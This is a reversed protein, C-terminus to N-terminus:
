TKKRLRQIESLALGTIEAIDSLTYGKRLMGIADETKGEAKGEAKGEVKGERRAEAIKPLVYQTIDAMIREPIEEGEFYRLRAYLGEELKDLVRKDKSLVENRELSEPNYIRRRDKSFASLFIGDVGKIEIEELNIVFIRFLNYQIIYCGPQKVLIYEKHERFFKKPSQSVILTMTTTDLKAQPKLKLYSHLYIICDLIDDQAFRDRFSKYSILNYNSLYDLIHFHQPITHKRILLVDLRKPRKLLELEPEVIYNFLPFFGQCQIKFFTDLSLDYTNHHQPTM